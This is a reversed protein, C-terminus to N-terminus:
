RIIIKLTANLLGSRKQPLYKKLEKGKIQRIEKGAEKITISETCENIAKVDEKSWIGFGFIFSATRDNDNTGLTIEKFDYKKDLAKIVHDECDKLKIEIDVNNKTKNEVTLIRVPDCSTFLLVLVLGFLLNTSLKM